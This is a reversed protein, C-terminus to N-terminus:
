EDNSGVAYLEEAIPPNCSGNSRALTVRIVRNMHEVTLLMSWRLFSFNRSSSAGRSELYTM